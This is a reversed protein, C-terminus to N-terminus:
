FNAYGGIVVFSAWAYPHRNRRDSSNLLELQANRLSEASTNGKLKRYNHFKIMLEATSDSDVSWLSAVVLPVGASIFSRAIGIAGEGQYSREIGTQCASLVVLRTHPLKMGYVEFAQLIGDSDPQPASRQPADALLLKSLMPSQEDVVYHSALHVVESKMMGARVQSEGAKEGLLPVSGYFAAVEEAEHGASTLEPLELFLRRAFSPNGVSLVRERVPGEKQLAIATCAIFINSSPSVIFRYKEIFFRGTEPSVLAGYPLYSLAKDPVICIQKEESLLPEVPRILVAYLEKAAAMTEENSDTKAVKRVYTLVKKSLDDASVQVARAELGARTLVWIILKDSLLSYQLIQVRESLRDRIESLQLPHTVPAHRLDPGGGEDIIQPATQLLNLLSRGRSEEAYDFARVPDNMKTYAFDSAMDYIDQGTDFFDNRNREEQIKSRYQEYLRLAQALEESAAYNDGLGDFALFKGRHVEYLFVGLDLKEFMQVANDYSSLASHFDGSQRYLNGLRLSAHSLINLRSLEGEVKQGEALARLGSKKAEEYERRREYIVGLRAHSRAIILPWASVEALRLAEKEFELSATPLDLWYFDFAIEHYFPWILKPDSSHAQAMEIADLGYKLSERYNGFKLYMSVFQQLCRIRTTDDQVQEAIKLARGAYELSKSLEDLGAEADSMAHLSQAFLSKYVKDEYIGSLREFRQRSQKINSLRLESYGIWSEALLAECADGSQQFKRAAETYLAIAKEFESKNYSENALHALHRADTIARRRAEGAQQYFAALDSTYRDGVKLAEVEGAFSLMRLKDAAEGGQGRAAFGLHEDLLQEIIQNGLRSRSKSFAAWAGNTDGARYASVFAEYLQAKKETAKGAQEELLKLNRRAEEAWPSSSDKELYKRWSDKAQEMLTMRQYVLARNFLAEPLSDNLALARNLHELSQAFYQLSKAADNLRESKGLELLAAGMDSQLQANGQDKALALEFQEQAKDFRREALYLRGLAHFSASGPNDHAADLLLREARDRSSGDVDPQSGGRVERNPAYGLESIRAEVLRQKKYAENLAVMGRDVDSQRALLAWIGYGIGLTIVVTAAVKFYLSSYFARKLTQSKPTLRSVKKEMEAAHASSEEDLALACALKHQREPARLFYREFQELQATSLEGQAYQDILETEIVELEEFYNDDSLLRHEVQEEDTESLEGLLYRRLNNQEEQAIRIGGSSGQNPSSTDSM